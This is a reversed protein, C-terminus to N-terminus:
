VQLTSKSWANLQSPTLKSGNGAIKLDPKSKNAYTITSVEVKSYAHASRLIGKRDAAAPKSQRM